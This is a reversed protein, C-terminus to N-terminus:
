AFELGFRDREDANLQRTTAIIGYRHQSLPLNRRCAVLPEDAPAEIYDWEIGPLTAFSAPRMTPRYQYKLEVQLPSGKSVLLPKQTLAPQVPSRHCDCSHYWYMGCTDSHGCSKILNAELESVYKAFFEKDTM